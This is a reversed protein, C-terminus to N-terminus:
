NSDSNQTINQEEIQLSKQWFINSDLIDLYDSEKVDTPEVIDDKTQEAKTPQNQEEGVKVFPYNINPFTTKPVYDNTIYPTADAILFFISPKSLNAYVQVKAEKYRDLTKVEKVIGVPVNPYFVNDLGSTRVKDGVEVKSWRPIYKVILGNFGDGQAIGNVNDKGILVSFTSKPNSILYGYLKSGKYEAVGAVVDKQILGYLKGETLNLDKPTTLMIENLKNLKVYSITDVLYISKYPQKVLSPILKYVKALQDIYNSQEILLKNLRNNEKQLKIIKEQQKLYSNSLNQFKLYSVKIPNIFDLIFSRVAGNYRTTIVFIIVLFVLLLFSRKKM